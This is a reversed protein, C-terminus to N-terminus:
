SMMLVIHFLHRASVSVMRQPRRSKRGIEPQLERPIYHFDDILVMFDSDAIERIVQNLGGLQTTKRTESGVSTTGALEAEAKGKGLFPIGAEGGAKAGIKGEVNCKGVVQIESPAGMWDLVSDWLDEASKIQAGNVKIMDHAPVIKNVLVTKGSKSPGSISVVLNKIQLANQLQEELNHTSRNVYSYTPVSTPTFVDVAKPM